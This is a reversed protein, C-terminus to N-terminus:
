RRSPQRSSRAPRLASSPRPSATPRTLSFSFEMLRAPSELSLDPVADGSLATTAENRRQPPKPLGQFRARLVYNWVGLERGCINGALSVILARNTLEVSM